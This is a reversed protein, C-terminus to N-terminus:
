FQLTKYAQSLIIDRFSDQSRLDVQLCRDNFLLYVWSPRGARFVKSLVEVWESQQFEPTVHFLYAKSDDWTDFEKKPEFTMQQVNVELLVPADQHFKYFLALATVNLFEQEYTETM